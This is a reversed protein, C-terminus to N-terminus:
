GRRNITQRLLTGEDSLVVPVLEPEYDLPNLLRIEYTPGLDRIHFAIRAGSIQRAREDRQAIEQNPLWGWSEDDDLHYRDGEISNNEPWFDYIIWVGRPSGTTVDVVVAFGTDDWGESNSIARETGDGTFDGTYYMLHGMQHFVHFPGREYDRSESLDNSVSSLGPRRRKRRNTPNPEVNTNVGLINKPLLPRNDKVVVAKGQLRTSLVVRYHIGSRKGILIVPQHQLYTLDHLKQVADINNYQTTRVLEMYQEPSPINQVLGTKGAVFDTFPKSSWQYFAKRDQRNPFEREVHDFIEDGPFVM